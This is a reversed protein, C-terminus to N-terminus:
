GPYDMDLLLMQRTLDAIMAQGLRPEQMAFERTAIQEVLIIVRTARAYREYEADSDDRRPRFAPFSNGLVSMLRERNQRFADRAEDSQLAAVHFRKAWFQGSLAIFEHIFGEISARDRPRTDFWQFVPESAVSESLIIAAILADKGTFHLYFAARSFGAAKAVTDVSIDQFDRTFFLKRGAKVIRARTNARNRLLPDSIDQAADTM